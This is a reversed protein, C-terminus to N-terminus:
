HPSVCRFSHSAGDLPISRKGSLTPLSIHPVYVSWADVCGESEVARRCQQIIPADVLMVPIDRNEGLLDFGRFAVVDEGSLATVGTRPWYVRNTTFMVTTHFDFDHAEQPEGSWSVTLDLGNKECWRRLNVQTEGDYLLYVYKKRGLVFDRFRM